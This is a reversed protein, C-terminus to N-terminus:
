ADPNDSQQNRNSLLEVMRKMGEDVEEEAKLQPGPITPRVIDGKAEAFQGAFAMYNIGDVYNDLKQHNPKIRAMKLATMWMAGHWPTFDLGTMLNFIICTREFLENEDGYDNGRDRLMSVSENLLEIHNM